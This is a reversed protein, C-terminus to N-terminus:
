FPIGRSQLVSGLGLQQGIVKYEPGFRSFADQVAAAATAADGGAAAYGRTNYAHATAAGPESSRRKNTLGVTDLAVQPGMRVVNDRGAPDYDSGRPVDYTVFYRAPDSKIKLTYSGDSNTTTEADPSGQRTARVKVTINSLGSSTNYEVVRGSVETDARVYNPFTCCLAAAVLATRSSSRSLM